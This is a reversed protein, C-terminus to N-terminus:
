KEKKEKVPVGYKLSLGILTDSRLDVIHKIFTQGNKEVLRSEQDLDKLSQQQQQDKEKRKVNTNIDNVLQNEEELKMMQLRQEVTPEIEPTPTESFLLPISVQQTSKKATTTTTTTSSTPKLNSLQRLAASTVECEVHTGSKCGAAEREPSKCCSWTYGFGGLVNTSRYTKYEGTHFRCEKKDEKRVADYYSHCRKCRMIGQAQPQQPQPQQSKVNTTTTTTTNSTTLPTKSTSTPKSQASITTSLSFASPQLHSYSTPTNASSKSVVSISSSHDNKNNNAARIVASSSASIPVRSPMSQPLSPTTQYGQPVLMPTQLTQLQPTQQQQQQPQSQQQMMQPNQSYAYYQQQQPQQPQQYYQQQQQSQQHNMYYVSNNSDNVQSVANNQLIQPQMNQQQQILFQAIQPFPIGPVYYYYYPNQQYQQQQQPFQQQSQPQAFQMESSIGQEPNHQQQSQQFQQQPMMEFSNYPNYYYGYQNQQQQASYPDMQKSAFLKDSLMEFCLSFFFLFTVKSTSNHYKQQIQLFNLMIQFWNPYLITRKQSFITM